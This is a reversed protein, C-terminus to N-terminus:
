KKNVFTDIMAYIHECTAAYKAEDKKEEQSVEKYLYEICDGESPIFIIIPFMESLNVLGAKDMFYICHNMDIGIVGGHKKELINMFDDLVNQRPPRLQVEDNYVCGVIMTMDEKLPLRKTTADFVPNIGPRPM